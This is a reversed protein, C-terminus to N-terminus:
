GKFGPAQTNPQIPQGQAVSAAGGEGVAQTLPMGKGLPGAQGQVKVSAGKIAKGM